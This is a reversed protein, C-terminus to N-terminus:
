KESGTSDQGTERMQKRLNWNLITRENIGGDEFYDRGMSNELYIGIHM